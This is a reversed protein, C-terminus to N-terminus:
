KSKEYEVLCDAAERLDAVASGFLDSNLQELAGALARISAFDETKYGEILDLVDNVTQDYLANYSSSAKADNLKTEAEALRKQALTQGMELTELGFEARKRTIEKNITTIYSQMAVTPDVKDNYAELFAFGTYRDIIYSGPYNPISSLQEFQAKLQVLEERTWPMSELASENATSHKASPGLIAVMENSYDVQCDAGVHWQMFTWSGEVNDCGTIMVIASAASVAERNVYGKEADYYGPLPYFNWLGEIETAFVKLHNYTATYGAFGIPM